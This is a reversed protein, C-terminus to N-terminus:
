KEIICDPSWLKRQLWSLNRRNPLWTLPFVGWMQTCHEHETYLHNWHHWGFLHKHTLSSFFKHLVLQYRQSLDSNLSFLLCLSLMTAGIKVRYRIKVQKHGEILMVEKEKIDVSFRHWLSATLFWGQLACQLYLFGLSWSADRKFSPASFSLCQQPMVYLFVSCSDRWLLNQCM